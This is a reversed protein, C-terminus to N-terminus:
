SARREKLIAYMENTRETNLHFILGVGILILVFAAIPMATYMKLVGTAVEQTQTKAGSVFGVWGLAYSGLAAGVGMGVKRIFSYLSYLTGEYHKGTKYETFDICDTVLAWVLMVFVMSGITAINYLVAFLYVNNITVFTMFASALLSFASTAIILNRKNFKAVLKPIFVFLVLTLGMSIFQNIAFASPMDYFEAFVIPALTTVGSVILMSGLTAVMMGILPRNTFASKFADKFDYEPKQGPPRNDRIRETTLKLLLTYSILSLISFVIAIYFFAEPVIAGSKDYIFMPVFSLFGVGVIMGGISRARSLKTREVPENTIVSALSGYPIADATYAVCFFLYTAVVWVHIATSEWSSVDVFALICAAALLWKSFNIWPKFKDGSNGIRFRDPLTGMIATIIADFVKGVLFMTGMFYPSVGLVYTCFIIFFSSIYLNVFSGGVDGLMYGVQDRVGFKRM